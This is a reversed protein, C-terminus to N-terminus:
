LDGTHLAGSRSRVGQSFSKAYVSPTKGVYGFFASSFASSSSFGVEFATETISRGEKRLLEMARNMRMERIFERWSQGLEAQLHRRLTRESMGAHDAVEPLTVGPGRRSAFDIVKQISSNEAYPTWLIREHRFWDPLMEGLTVFFCRAKKDSSAAEASWRLAYDTMGGAFDSVAGVWCGNHLWAVEKACFKAVVGSSPIRARLRFMRSPPIYVMHDAPIVWEGAHGFLELEGATCRVLQGGAEGESAFDFRGPGFARAHSAMGASVEFYREGSGKGAM